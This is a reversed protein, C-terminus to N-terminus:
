DPRRVPASPPHAPAKALEMDISDEQEGEHFGPGQSRVRFTEAYEFGHPRGQEASWQRVWQAVRQGDSGIQSAHCLLAEIKRDITASIDVAVPKAGPGAVWLERLGRWPEFGEELLEPFHGPTTGATMAVDLSALG